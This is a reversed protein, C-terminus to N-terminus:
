GKKAILEDRVSADKMLTNASAILGYHIMPDDDDEDRERREILSSPDDGCVVACGTESNLPHVVQSRYLRDTIAEPRGYKKRLPPKKALASNVTESIQNGDTEYQAMLGGVATRLLTPPQNLFGTVQFEQDQIAKGFDYQVIGRKGNNSVGVVIDGLRIDHKSSPAGGGIGVMFGIPAALEDLEDAGPQTAPIVEIVEEIEIEPDTELDTKLVAAAIAAPRATSSTTAFRRTTRM